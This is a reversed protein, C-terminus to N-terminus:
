ADVGLALGLLARARGLSRFAEGSDRALRILEGIRAERRLLAALVAAVDPDGNPKLANAAFAPLARDAPDCVVRLAAFPLSHDAAYAAAVQSEMDVVAAGTGARLAAKDAPTMVPVEVGALDAATVRAGFPALRTLFAAAIRECAEFRVPAADGEATVSRAVVIDGPRLAPDLGGAIGFSVVARLGAPSRGALLARLRDPNGGALITEVGPGAALRAERALGAVALVAGEGLAPPM